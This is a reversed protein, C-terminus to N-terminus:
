CIGQGSRAYSSARKSKKEETEEDLAVRFAHIAYDDELAVSKRKLSVGIESLCRIAQQQRLGKSADEKAAKRGVQGGRKARRAAGPSVHTASGTGRGGHRNSVAGGGAAPSATEDESTTEEELPPPVAISRPNFKPVKQLIKSAGAYPWQSIDFSKFLYVYAEGPVNSNPKFKGLHREVAIRYVDDVTVGTLMMGRVELLSANFRQIDLATVTLKSKV